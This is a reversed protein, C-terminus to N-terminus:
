ARRGGLIAAVEDGVLDATHADRARVVAIVEDADVPEGPSLALEIGVGPDVSQVPHMRGAGLRRAAAGLAWPDPARFSGASRAHVTREHAARGPAGADTWVEAGAHHAEVWRGAAAVASGDAIARGADSEDGRDSAAALAGAVRVAATRLAADGGGRLVAAAQRVLEGHGLAPAILAPVETQVTVIRREWAGAFAAAARSVMEAGARDPIQAGPGYTVHICAAPAGLALTRSLVSAAAFAASRGLGARARLASLRREAPALRSLGSTAVCGGEELMPLADAMDMGSVYGPIADLQDALGPVVGVEGDADCIVKVGLAAATPIAVLLTADGLAGTAALSGVAGLPALELRRGSAVLESVLTFLASDDLGDRAACAMLATMPADATDDSVWTHFFERASAPDPRGGCVFQEVYELPRLPSAM